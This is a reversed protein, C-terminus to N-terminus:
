ASRVLHVGRPGRRSQRTASAEEDGEPVRLAALLRALTIRQQRLEVAAPHARVGARTPMLPGDEDLAAQLAICLDLTHAAEELLVLEHTNLEYTAKLARSLRQGASQRRPM